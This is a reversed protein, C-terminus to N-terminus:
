HNKFRQTITLLAQITEHLTDEYITQRITSAYRNVQLRETETLKWKSVKDIGKLLYTKIKEIQKPYNKNSVAVGREIYDLQLYVSNDIGKSFNRESRFASRMFHEYDFSRTYATNSNEM